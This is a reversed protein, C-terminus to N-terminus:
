AQAERDRWLKRIYGESLDLKISIDEFGLGSVIMDLIRLDRADRALEKVEDHEPIASM